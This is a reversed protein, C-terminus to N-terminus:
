FNNDTPITPIPLEQSTIGTSSMDLPYTKVSSVPTSAAVPSTPTEILNAIATENGLAYVGFVFSRDGVELSQSLGSNSILHGRFSNIFNGNDYVKISVWGKNKRQAIELMKLMDICRATPLVDVSLTVNDFAEYYCYYQSDVGLEQRSIVDASIELNTIGDLLVDHIYVKNKSADYIKTKRTIVKGVLGQAKDLLGSIASM